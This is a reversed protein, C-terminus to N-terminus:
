CELHAIRKFLEEDSPDHLGHYDAAVRAERIEEGHALRQCLSRARSEGPGANRPPAGVQPFRRTADIGTTM